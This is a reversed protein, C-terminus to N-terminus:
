ASEEATQTAILVVDPERGIWEYQFRQVMEAIDGRDDPLVLIARDYKQELQALRALYHGVKHPSLYASAASIEVAIWHQGQRMALMPEFRDNVGFERVEDIAGVGLLEPQAILM